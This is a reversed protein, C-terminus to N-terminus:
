RAADLDHKVHLMNLVGLLVLVVGVAIMTAIVGGGLGALANEPAIRSWISVGLLLAGGTLLIPILTRRFQLREYIAQKAAA